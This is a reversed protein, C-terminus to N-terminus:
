DFASLWEDSDCAEFFLLSYSANTCNIESTLKFILFQCDIDCLTAIFIVGVKHFCTALRACTELRCGFSSSLKAVNM